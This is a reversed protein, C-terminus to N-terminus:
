CCRILPNGMGVQKRESVDSLETGCFFCRTQGLILNTGTKVCTEMLNFLQQREDDMFDFFPKLPLRMFDKSM